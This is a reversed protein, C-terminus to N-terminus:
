LFAREHKQEPVPLMKNNTQTNATPQLLMTSVLMRLPFCSSTFPFDGCGSGARPEAPDLGGIRVREGEAPGPRM